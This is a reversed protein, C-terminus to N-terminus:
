TVEVAQAVLEAVQEELDPEEGQQHLLASGAIECLDGVAQALLQDAAVGV